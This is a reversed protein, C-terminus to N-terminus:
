IKKILLDTDGGEEKEEALDTIELNYRSNRLMNYVDQKNIFNITRAIEANKGSKQVLEYFEERNGRLPKNFEIMFHPEFTCDYDPCKLNIYGGKKLVRLMENIYNQCDAVHELVMFSSIYDFENDDFDTKEGNYLIFHEKWEQPLSLDDILQMVYEYKEKDIDVGYANDYGSLLFNLVSTGCGFGYDFIKSEYTVRGLATNIRWSDPAFINSWNIYVRNVDPNDPTYTSRERERIGNQIYSLLMRQHKFQIYQIGGGLVYVNTIGMSKLQHFIEDYYSSTIFVIEDKIHEKLYDPSIINIGTGPLNPSTYQKGWKSSDNDCIYAIVYIRSLMKIYKELLSGQGFCIIDRM